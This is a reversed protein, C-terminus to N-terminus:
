FSMDPFPPTLSGAAATRSFPYLTGVVSDDSYNYKYGYILAVTLKTDM